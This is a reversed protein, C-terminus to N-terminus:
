PHTTRMANAKVFKCIVLVYLFPMPVLAHENCYDILAGVAAADNIILDLAKSYNDLHLYTISLDHTIEALEEKLEPHKTLLAKIDEEYKAKQSSAPVAMVSLLPHVTNKAMQATHAELYRIYYDILGFYTNLDAEKALQVVGDEIISLAHDMSRRAYRTFLSKYLMLAEYYKGELVNAHLEDLIKDLGSMTTGLPERKSNRRNFQKNLGIVLMMM